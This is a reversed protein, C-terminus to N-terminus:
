ALNAGFESLASALHVLERWGYGSDQNGIVSGHLPTLWEEPIAKIGQVAGVLGGTVCAVTDTDGGIEIVEWMAQRFPWGQRLVWVATGLTVWAVGNADEAYYPSWGDAFVEHFKDLISPPFLDSHRRSVALKAMAIDLVSLVDQGRFAARVMEGYLMCAFAARPDPHTLFSVEMERASRRGNAHEAVFIALPTARMLSGNGASHEWNPLNPHPRGGASLSISTTIGVDKPGAEFWQRLLMWIHDQDVDGREMLSQAVLLAQQTDDTWEGAAWLSSFRHSLTEPTVGARSLPFMQSFEWSAGLADGVISGLLAGAVRDTPTSSSM